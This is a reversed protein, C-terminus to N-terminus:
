LNFVQILAFDDCIRVCGCTKITHVPGNANGCELIWAIEAM